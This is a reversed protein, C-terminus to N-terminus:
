RPALERSAFAGDESLSEIRALSRADAIEAWFEDVVAHLNSLAHTKLEDSEEELLALIGSASTLVPAHAVLTPSLSMLHSAVVSLGSACRAFDQRFLRAQISREFCNANGRMM